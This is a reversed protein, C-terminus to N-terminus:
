RGAMLEAKSPGRLRSPELVVIQRARLGRAALSAKVAEGHRKAKIQSAASQVQAYTTGLMEAIDSMAEIREAYGLSLAALLWIQNRPGNKGILVKNNLYIEEDYGHAARLIRSGHM